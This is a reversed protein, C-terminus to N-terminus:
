CSSSVGGALAAKDRRFRRWVQEWYGRARVNELEGLGTGSEVAVAAGLGAGSSLLEPKEQTSM